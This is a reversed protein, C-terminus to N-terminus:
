LPAVGCGVVLDASIIKQNIEGVIANEEPIGLISGPVEPHSAPVRSPSTFDFGYGPRLSPSPSAGGGAPM